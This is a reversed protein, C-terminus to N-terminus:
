NFYDLLSRSKLKKPQKKFSLQASKRKALTALFCFPLNTKGIVQIM